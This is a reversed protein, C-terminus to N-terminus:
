KYRIKLDQDSYLDDEQNLFEFSNGSTLLSYIEENLKESKEGLFTVIVEQPELPIKADLLNVSKGDFIGKLALM